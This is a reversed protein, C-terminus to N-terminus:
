KRCRGINKLYKRNYKKIQYTILINRERISLERRREIKSIFDFLERETM